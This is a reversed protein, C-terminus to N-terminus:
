VKNTAAAVISGGCMRLSNILFLSDTQTYYMLYVAMLPFSLTGLKRMDLQGYILNLNQINTRRCRAPADSETSYDTFPPALVSPSAM